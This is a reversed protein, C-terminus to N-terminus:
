AHAQLALAICHVLEVHAMVYTLWNVCTLGVILQNLCKIAHNNYLPLTSKYATYYLIQIANSVSQYTLQQYVSGGIKLLKAM